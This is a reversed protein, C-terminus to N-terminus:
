WSCFGVSFQLGTDAPDMKGQVRCGPSIAEEALLLNPPSAQAPNQSHHPWGLLLDHIGKLPQGLAPEQWLQVCGWM